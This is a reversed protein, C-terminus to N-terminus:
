ERVVRLASMPSAMIETKQNKVANKLEYMAELLRRHRNKETYRTSGKFDSGYETTCNKMTFSKGEVRMFNIVENANPVMERTVTMYSENNLTYIDCQAKDFKVTVCYPQTKLNSSMQESIEHFLLIAARTCGNYKNGMIVPTEPYEDSYIKQKQALDPYLAM